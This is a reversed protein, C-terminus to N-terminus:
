FYVRYNICVPIRPLGRVRSDAEAEESFPVFKIGGLCQYSVRERTNKNNPFELLASTVNHWCPGSSSKKVLSHDVSMPCDQEQKEM